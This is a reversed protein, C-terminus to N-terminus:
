YIRVLISRNFINPLNLPNSVLKLSEDIGETGYSPSIGSNGIRSEYM